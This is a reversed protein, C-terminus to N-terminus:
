AFAYRRASRAPAVLRTHAESTLTVAPAPGCKHRADFGIASIPAARPRAAFDVDIEIDSESKNIVVLHLGEGKAHRAAFASLAPGGSIDLSLGRDGFVAGAEDPARYLRYAEGLWGDLSGWHAAYAVGSRGLRGLADALALGSTLRGVGGYNFETVALETGPFAEEALHKLSPLIPLGLGRGNKFARAVWSDEEFGPEDLSRPADLKIEDLEPKETRFVDGKNSFAYWHVDLADLLRRGEKESAERFARLYVNLFSGQDAYDKWDPANQFDVMETAGWSVPGFVKAAPDLSKIARAAAISRELFGRIAPAGHQLRPHNRAWLGPENDLAYARVGTATDARGYKQILRGLLAPINCIHPDASRADPNWDVRAFHRSPAADLADIPGAIDAAVFGQLPLTVLSTAGMALSAEHMAEIVIGPHRWQNRPIKLAKLLFHGNANKYAAGANDSNDTWNYSTMLNGGLRRATVGARRDLSASLAGGDMAGIENSGYIERSIPFDPLDDRVRIAFRAPSSAAAPGAAAWALAGGLFDRRRLVPGLSM